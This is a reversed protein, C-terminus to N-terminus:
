DLWDIDRHNWMFEKIRDELPETSYRRFRLARFVDGPWRRCYAEYIRQEYARQAEIGRARHTEWNKVRAQLFNAKVSWGVGGFFFYHKRPARVRVNPDIIDAEPDSEDDTDRGSGAEEDRSSAEEDHSSAEEDHSSAEEDRSNSEEEGSDTREEGSGVEKSQGDWSGADSRDESDQRDQSAQM